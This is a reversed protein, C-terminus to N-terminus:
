RITFHVENLQVNIGYESCVTCVETRDYGPLSARNGLGFNFTLLQFYIKQQFRSLGIPRTVTPRNVSLEKVEGCLRLSSCKTIEENVKNILYEELRKDSYEELSCNLIDLVHKVRKVIASKENLKELEAQLEHYM